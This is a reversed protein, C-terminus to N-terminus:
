RKALADVDNRLDAMAGEEQSTPSLASTAAGDAKAGGQEDGGLFM